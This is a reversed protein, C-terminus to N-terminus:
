ELYDWQVSDFAKHFDVKFILSPVRYRKLSHVAENAVLFGDIIQRGTLFATQNESILDHMVAKLHSSLVKAMIKYIVHILSIPRFDKFGVLSATKLILHIYAHNVGKPLRGTKFFNKALDLLDDAIFNWAFRYFKFNFGDPGPDKSGDCDWVSQKLEELTIDRELSASSSVSLTKFGVPGLGILFRDPSRFLNSFFSVAVDKIVPLGEVVSGNHVVKLLHNKAKRFNAVLHFFRTNRDGLRCWVQCSKQRWMSEINLNCQWQKKILSDLSNQEATSLQGYESKQEIVSINSQILTLATEQNGFGVRDWQRLWTAM